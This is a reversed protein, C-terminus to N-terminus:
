LALSEQVVQLREVLCITDRLYLADLRPVLKGDVPSERLDRQARCQGYTGINRYHLCNICLKM